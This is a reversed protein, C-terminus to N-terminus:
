RQRGIGQVREKEFSYLSTFSIQVFVNRYSFKSCPYVVPEKLKVLVNVNSFDALGISGSQCHECHKQLLLSHPLLFRIM